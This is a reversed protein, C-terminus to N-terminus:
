YVETETRAQIDALVEEVNGGHKEVISRVAHVIGAEMGKLGCIYILTEPNSLVPWLTQEHEEILHFVYKRGGESNKQERSLAKLYHFNEHSDFQSLEEDYLLEKSTRVGFLLYVPSKFDPIVHFLRRLFGRFPAIGTGTAFFVYPRHVEEEVPLLFKRGAPGTMSVTDGAKLDCVFNSAVGKKEEGTEPDNYLVRKVCLALKEAAPSATASSDNGLSAISYLRVAHPNGKENIGPPLVGISQGDLFELGPTEFVLHHVEGEPGENCLVRNEILTAECPNAKKFMNVQVAPRNFEQMVDFGM